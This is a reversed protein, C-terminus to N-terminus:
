QQAQIRNINRVQLFSIVSYVPADHSGCLLCNSKEKVRDFVRSTERGSGTKDHKPM